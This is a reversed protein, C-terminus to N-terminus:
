RRPHAPRPAIPVPAPDRLTEPLCLIEWDGPDYSCAHAALDREHLRQMIIVEVGEKPDAFRTALTGDYWENVENLM